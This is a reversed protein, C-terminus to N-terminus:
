GLVPGNWEWGMRGRLQSERLHVSTLHAFSFFSFSFNCVFEKVKLIPLQLNTQRARRKECVCLSPPKRLCLQTHVDVINIRIQTHTYPIGRRATRAWVCEDETALRRTAAPASACRSASAAAPAAPPGPLGPPGPETESCLSVLHHSFQVKVRDPQHQPVLFPWM